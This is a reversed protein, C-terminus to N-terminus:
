EILHVNNKDLLPRFIGQLTCKFQSISQGYIVNSCRYVSTNCSASYQMKEIYM